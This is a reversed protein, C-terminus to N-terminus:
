SSFACLRSNRFLEIDRDDHDETSMTSCKNNCAMVRRVNIRDSLLAILYVFRRWAPSDRRPHVYSYARPHKCLCELDMATARVYGDRSNRSSRLKFPKRVRPAGKGERTGERWHFEGSRAENRNRTGNSGEECDERQRESREQEGRRAVEAPACDYRGTESRQRTRSDGSECPLSNPRRERFLGLGRKTETM